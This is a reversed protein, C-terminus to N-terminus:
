QCYGYGPRGALAGGYISTEDSPLVYSIDGTSYNWVVQLKWVNQDDGIYYLDENGNADTSITALSTGPQCFNGSFMTPQRAGLLSLNQVVGTPGSFPFIAYLNQDTGAYFVQIGGGKIFSTLSDGAALGGGDTATLDTRLWQGNRTLTLFHVHRDAGIYFENQGGADALGTLPSGVMALPTGSMATLDYSGETGNYWALECLHGKASVYYVLETTGDSYSTLRSNASAPCSAGAMATLNEHTPTGAGAAYIHHIEFNGTPPNFVIYYVHQGRANSFGTLNSRWNAMPAGFAKATWDMDSASSTSWSWRMQHVHADTGGIYFNHQGDADSLSFLSGFVAWTSGTLGKTGDIDYPQFQHIDGGFLNDGAIYLVRDGSRDSFSTLNGSQAAAPLAISVLALVSLAIKRGMGAVMDNRKNEQREVEISSVQNKM